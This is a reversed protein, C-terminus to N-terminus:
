NRSSRCGEKEEIKRRRFDEHAVGSRYRQAKQSSCQANRAPQLFEPRQPKGQDYECRENGIGTRGQNSPQQTALTHPLSMTLVVILAKNKGAPAMAASRQVFIREHNEAPDHRKNAQPLRQDPLKYQQRSKRQGHGQRHPGDVPPPSSERRFHMTLPERIMLGREASAKKWSTTTAPRAHSAAKQNRKLKSMGGSYKNIILVVTPQTTASSATQKQINPNYRPSQRYALM